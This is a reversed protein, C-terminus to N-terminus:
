IVTYAYRSDEGTGTPLYLDRGGYGEEEAAEAVCIDCVGSQNRIM